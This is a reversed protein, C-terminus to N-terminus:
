TKVTALDTSVEGVKGKTASADEKVQSVETSVASVRDNVQSVKAAQDASDREQAQKLQAALEDAHKTADIKAQGALQGAVRRAEDVDTKMTEVSKRSTQTTSEHLQAMEATLSDKTTALDSQLQKVQTFLYVSAGILAIVAGFLIATKAGSGHSEPPNLLSDSM